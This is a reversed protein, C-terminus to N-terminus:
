PDWNQQSLRPFDRCMQSLISPCLAPSLAAELVALFIYATGLASHAYPPPPTGLKFAPPQPHFARPLWLLSSPPDWLLGQEKREGRHSLLVPHRSWCIESGTPM